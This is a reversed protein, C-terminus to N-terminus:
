RSIHKILIGKLWSLTNLILSVNSEMGWCLVLLIFVFCFVFCFLYIFMFLLAKGFLHAIKVKLDESSNGNTRGSINEMPQYIDIPIKATVKSLIPLLNKRAWQRGQWRVLVVLGAVAGWQWDKSKNPDLLYILTRALNGPSPPPKKMCLQQALFETLDSRVIERGVWAGYHALWM